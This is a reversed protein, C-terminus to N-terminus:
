TGLDYRGKKHFCHRTLFALLKGFLGRVLCGCIRQRFAQEQGKGRTLYAVM